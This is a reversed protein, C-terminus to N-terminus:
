KYRNTFFSDLETPTYSRVAKIKNEYDKRTKTLKTQTEKVQIDLDKLKKYQSLIISDQRLQQKNLDKIQNNLSDIALLQKSYKAQLPQKDIYVSFLILMGIVTLGVAIIFKYKEFVYSM